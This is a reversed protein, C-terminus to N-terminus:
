ESAKAPGRRPRRRSRRRRRPDAGGAPKAPAESTPPAAAREPAREAPAKAPPTSVPERKPKPIGPKDRMKVVRGRFRRGKQSTPLGTSKEAARSGRRGDAKAAAYRRKPKPEPEPKEVPADFARGCLYQNQIKVADKCTECRFAPLKERIRRCWIMQPKWHM